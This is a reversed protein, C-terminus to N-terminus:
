NRDQQLTEMSILSAELYSIYFINNLVRDLYEKLM